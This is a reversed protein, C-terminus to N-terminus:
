APGGHPDGALADVAPRQAQLDGLGGGLAELELAGRERLAGDTASILAAVRQNDLRARLDALRQGLCLAREGRRERQAQRAGVAGRRIRLVHRELPLRSTWPSSCSSLAAPEARLRM